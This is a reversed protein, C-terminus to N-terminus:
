QLRWIAGGKFLPIISVTDPSKCYPLKVVSGAFLVAVNLALHSQDWCVQRSPRNRRHLLFRRYGESSLSPFLFFVQMRDLSIWQCYKLPHEPFMRAFSQRLFVYRGFALMLLAAIGNAHKRLVHLSPKVLKAEKEERSAYALTTLDQICQLLFELLMLHLISLVPLSQVGLPTSDSFAQNSRNVSPACACFSFM